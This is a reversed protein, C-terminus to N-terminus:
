LLKSNGEKRELFFKNQKALGVEVQKSLPFGKIKSKKKLRKRGGDGDNDDRGGNVNSSGGSCSGGGAGVAGIVFPDSDYNARVRNNRRKGKGFLYEIEHNVNDRWGVGSSDNAVIDGSM